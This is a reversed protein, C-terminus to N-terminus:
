EETGVMGSLLTDISYSATVVTKYIETGNVGAAAAEPTAYFCLTATALKRGEFTPSKIRMNGHTVAAQIIQMRVLTVADDDPSLVDEHFRNVVGNANGPDLDVQYLLDQTPIEEFGYFGNGISTIAPAAPAATGDAHIRSIFAPTCGVVGSDDAGRAFFHRVSM